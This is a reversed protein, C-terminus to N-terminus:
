QSNGPPWGWNRTAPAQGVHCSAGDFGAFPLMKLLISTVFTVNWQRQQLRNTGNVLTQGHVCPYIIPPPGDKTDDYLSRVGCTTVRESAM